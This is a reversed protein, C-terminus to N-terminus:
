AAPTGYGGGGPAQVAVQQGAKVRTAQRRGVPEGDVEIAGGSGAGGGALGWPPNSMRDSTGPIFDLPEDSLVVVEVRQGDGGRYRGTGGTGAAIAKRRFLIPVRSEMIEIPVNACNAPTPLGPRGPSDARAGTGGSFFYTETFSSSAQPPGGHEYAVPVDRYVGRFRFTWLGGFNAEIRDPRIYDPSLPALARFLASYINHAVITRVQTAAPKRPNLICGAPATFSFPAFLGQLLPIDPALVCCLAYAAESRAMNFPVNIGYPAQDSTGSFDVDLEDAAVTVTAAIRINEGNGDSYTEAAYSGDPLARVRARIAAEARAQLVDSLDTLRDLGHEDLLEEVRREMLSTAAYLAQVDGVVHHPLRSNARIFSLIDDNLRGRDYLKCPPIHLGEEFNDTADATPKGGIDSVHALSAAYGVLRTRYFVPKVALFDPLHGSALWPDNTLLLDGAALNAAEIEGVLGALGTGLTGVFMGLARRTQAILRFQEDYLGCAYDQAEAVTSSYATRVLVTEAERVISVLRSHVVEPLNTTRAPTSM